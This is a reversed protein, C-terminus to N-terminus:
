VDGLQEGSSQVSVALSLSLSVSPLFNRRKSVDGLRPRRAPFIFFSTKLGHLRLLAAPASRLWM